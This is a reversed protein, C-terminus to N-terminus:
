YSEGKCGCGYPIKAMQLSGLYNVNRQTSMESLCVVPYVVSVYQANFASPSYVQGGLGDVAPSAHCLTTHYGQSKFM